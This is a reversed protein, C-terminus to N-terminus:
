HQEENNKNKKVIGEIDKYILYLAMACIIGVCTYEIMM